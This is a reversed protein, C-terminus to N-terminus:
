CFHEASWQITKFNPKWSNQRRTGSIFNFVNFSIQYV